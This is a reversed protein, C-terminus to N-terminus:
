EAWASRALRRTLLIVSASPSAERRARECVLIVLHHNIAEFLGERRFRLFWGYVTSRPPFDQPLLRWAMGGPEHPM